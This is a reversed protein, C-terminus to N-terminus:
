RVLNQKSLICHANPNSAHFRVRLLIPKLPFQETFNLKLKEILRENDLHEDEQHIEMIEALIKAMKSDNIENFFLISFYNYKM